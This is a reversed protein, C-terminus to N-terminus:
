QHNVPVITIKHKEKKRAHKSVFAVDTYVEQTRTLDALSNKGTLRPAGM